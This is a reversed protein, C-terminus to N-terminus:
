DVVSHGGEGVLGGLGDDALLRLRFGYVSFSIRLRFASLVPSSVRFACGSFPFPIWFRLILVDLPFEFKRELRLIRMLGTARRCGRRAIQMIGRYFLASFPFEIRPFEAYKENGSIFDTGTEAGM